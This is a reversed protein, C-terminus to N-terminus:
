RVEAAAIRQCRKQYGGAHQIGRDEDLRHRRCAALGCRGATCQRSRERRRRPNIAYSGGESLSWSDNAVSLYWSESTQYSIYLTSGNRYSAYVACHSFQGTTDDTFATGDWDEATFEEVVAARAACSVVSAAFVALLFRFDM